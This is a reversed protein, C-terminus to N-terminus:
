VVEPSASPDAAVPVDVAAPDIVSEVYNLYEDFVEKPGGAEVAQEALEKAYEERELQKACACAVRLSLWPLRTDMPIHTSENALLEKAARAADEAFFLGQRVDVKAAHAALMYRAEPIRPEIEILANLRVMIEEDSYFGVREIIGLYRFLAYHTKLVDDADAMQAGIEMRRWYLALAQMQYSIWPGGTTRETMHGLAEYSQALYWLAQAHEDLPRATDAVMKTLTPLDFDRIRAARRKPDTAEHEVFVGEILPGHSERNPGLPVEHVEGVYRWGAGARLVRPYFWRTNESHMTVSYAGEPAEHHAVLFDKLRDGGVLVEDASLSLAFIPPNPGTTALDFVRNRATAFDVFPEEVLVLPVGFETATARIVDQTGDTSGTDLVYIADVVGRVSELTRRITHAEDKVIACLAILPRSKSETTM